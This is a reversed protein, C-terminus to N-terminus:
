AVLRVRRASASAARLAISRALPKSISRSPSVSCSANARSRFALWIEPRGSLTTASASTAVSDVHAADVAASPVARDVPPDSVLRTALEVRLTEVSQGDILRTLLSVAM